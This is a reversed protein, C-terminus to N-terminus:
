CAEFTFAITPDTVEVTDESKPKKIGFIIPLSIEISLDSGCLSKNEEISFSSFEQFKGPGIPATQITKEFGDTQGLSNRTMGKMSGFYFESPNPSELIGTFDFKKLRLNQNFSASISGGCSIFSDLEGNGQTSKLSDVGFRLEIVNGIGVVSPTINFIPNSKGKEIESKLKCTVSNSSVFVDALASQGTLCVALGLTLFSFKM